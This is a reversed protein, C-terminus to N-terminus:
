ARASTLSLFKNDQGLLKYITLIEQFCLKYQQYDCINCNIYKYYKSSMHLLNKLFFIFLYNHKFNLKINAVLNTKTWHLEMIRTSYILYHYKSVEYTFLKIRDFNM